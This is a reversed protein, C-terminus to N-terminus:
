LPSSIYAGKKRYIDSHTYQTSHIDIAAFTSAACKNECYSLRRVFSSVFLGCEHTHQFYFCPRANFYSSCNLEILNERYVFFHTQFQRKISIEPPKFQM